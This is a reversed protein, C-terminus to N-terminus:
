THGRPEQSRLLADLTAIPLPRSFYFGQMEDCGRSSLFALQEVTEVGEAVTRLKLSQALAVVASVVAADNDDETVNGVFARDIKVTSFPFRDTM